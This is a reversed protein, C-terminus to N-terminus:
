EGGEDRRLCLLERAAALQPEDGVLLVCDRGELRFGAGPSVMSTGSRDVGIVSAGTRARLDTEGLLMGVVRADGPIEVTELHARRLLSPMEQRRAEELPEAFMERLVLQGRAYIRIFSGRLLFTIGAAVAVLFVLMPWPPLILASLMLLWFFALTTGSVLVVSAVISRSPSVQGSAMGQPVAMEALIMGVARLKRVVAVWFPLVVLLAGFWFLTNVGGTWPPLAAWWGAGGQFRGALGAAGIFIGAGVMLNIFIQTLSRRLVQRVAAPVQSGAGLSGLWQSYAMLAALLPRPAAQEVRDGIWGARRMLLSSAFMTFASVAVALPYLFGDIVNLQLGLTAIIFSFEGIQAMNIGVRVATRPSHGSLLTGAFIAAARGVLTVLAVVLAAKWHTLLEEPRILMGVSVFFIASFMDRVPAMLPMIRHNERAEAVLTGAVFAGLATSLGAQEALLAGACCIGLTATLLLESSRRRSFRRVLPPVVFLGALLGVALLATLKGLALAAGGFTVLQTVAIGSLVGLMVAGLIDEFIAVGMSIQAHPANEEGRDALIKVLFMSSNISLMAGLFVGDMASWGFFLAVHYGAWLMLGIELAATLGAGIGVRALRRLNFELGVCFLLFVIGLESLGEIAEREVTLPIQPTGPGILVGALIYGLAVPLGIRHFLVSVCGATVMVLALNYLLTHM